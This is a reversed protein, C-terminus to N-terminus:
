LNSSRFIHRCVREQEFKHAISSSSTWPKKAEVQFDIVLGVNASCAEIWSPRLLYIHWYTGM